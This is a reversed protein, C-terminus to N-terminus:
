KRHLIGGPQLEERLVERVTDSIPKIQETQGHVAFRDVSALHQSYVAVGDQHPADGTYGGRCFRWGVGLGIGDATAQMRVSCQKILAKDISGDKILAESIYTTGDVVIFPKSVTKATGAIPEVVKELDGIRVPGFPGGNIEILGKAIKWGSVGPVYDESQM